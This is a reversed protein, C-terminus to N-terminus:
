TYFTLKQIKSTRRDQPEVLSQQCTEIRERKLNDFMKLERGDFEEKRRVIKLAKNSRAEDFSSSSRRDSERDEIELQNAIQFM